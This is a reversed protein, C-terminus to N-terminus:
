PCPRRSSNPANGSPSYKKSQVFFPKRQHALNDWLYIGADSPMKGPLYTQLAAKISTLHFIFANFNKSPPSGSKNNKECAARNLRDSQSGLFRGKPPAEASTKKLAMSGLTKTGPSLNIANEESTNILGKVKNQFL